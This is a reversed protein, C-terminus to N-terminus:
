GYFEKNELHQLEDSHDFIRLWQNRLVMKIRTQLIPRNKGEYDDYIMLSLKGSALHIKILDIESLDGYIWQGLLAYIRLVAPLSGIKRRHFTFHKEIPDKLGFSVSELAIELEGPDGSAFLLSDAEAQALDYHGWFEKIDKLIRSGLDKRRFKKRFRTMALYVLVDEKRMRRAEAFLAQGKRELLMEFAKRRSGAANRLEAWGDFEDKEPIRGYELLASWFKEFTAKHLAYRSVRSEKREKPPTFRIQTSIESWDFRRRVRAASFSEHEERDRFVVCIGPALTVPEVELAREILGELEGPEFFKQFTGLATLFGDRWKRQHAATEQGRVLTSVILVCRSLEGARKLVMIREDPDEIVNLVYGLNVVEAKKLPEDSLYAPDWGASEYGLQALAQVDVGRGCGYDFFSRGERLLGHQLLLKVPRSLDQRRIATRHRLIPAAEGSPTVEGESRRSDQILQHGKLSFGKQRLLAEWFQKTGIRKTDDLLGVSEEAKTLERFVIWRPDNEHLFTEKRHLIPPNARNSYDTRVVRGTSFNLKTAFSLSPHPDENFDPYLLFTIARERTHLKLLNWNSPPKSAEAARRIEKGLSQSAFRVSSRAIYVAGPLKKGFPLNQVFTQWDQLNM